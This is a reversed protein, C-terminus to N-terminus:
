RRTHRRKTKRANRERGKRNEVEDVAKVWVADSISVHKGEQTLFISRMLMSLTGCDMDPGIYEIMSPKGALDTFFIQDGPKM